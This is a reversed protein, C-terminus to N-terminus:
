LYDVMEGSLRRFVITGVGLATAACVTPLVFPSWGPWQGRLVIQQYGIILHTLPNWALLQQIRESLIQQPYVIPTFWFWFQLVIAVVHTVDRFFVNLVGLAVGLGLAFAQQVFLLLLMALLPGGPFRGLIALVLLLLGFIISFNVGASLLVVVPLTATPFSMKKLLNAQEIFVTLCRHIVEAFMGWTMVGACLFIGYALADDAGSLRGQMLRGFVVMYMVVLGLPGLIAWASGLLSNLYKAQFERKVMGLVFGRYRWLARM